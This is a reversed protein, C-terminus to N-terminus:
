KRAKAIHQWKYYKYTNIQLPGESISITSYLHYFANFSFNSQIFIICIIGCICTKKNM